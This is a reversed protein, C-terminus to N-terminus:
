VHCEQLVARCERWGREIRVSSGQGGEKGECSPIERIKQLAVTFRLAVAFASACSAPPREPAPGCGSEPGRPGRARLGDTQKAQFRDESVGGCWREKGARRKGSTASVVRARRGALPARRAAKCAGAGGGPEDARAVGADSRLGGAGGGAGGLAAVRAGAPPSRRTAGRGRAHERARRVRPWVREPALPGRPLQARVGRWRADRAAARRACARLRARRRLVPPSPRRSSLAPHPPARPPAPRPAPSVPLAPLPLCLLCCRRPPLCHPTLAADRDGM